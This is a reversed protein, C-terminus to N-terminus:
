YTLLLAPVTIVARGRKRSARSRRKPCTESAQATRRISQLAARLPEPEGDSAYVM